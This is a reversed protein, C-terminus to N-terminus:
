YQLTHVENCQKCRMVHRYYGGGPTGNSYGVVEITSYGLGQYLEHKNGCNCTCEEDQFAKTRIEKLMKGRRTKTTGILSIYVVDTPVDINKM